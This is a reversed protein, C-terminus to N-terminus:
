RLLLFKAVRGAFPADPLDDAMQDVALADEAIAGEADAATVLRRERAEVLVVVHGGRGIVVPTEHGEGVFEPKYAGGVQRDEV